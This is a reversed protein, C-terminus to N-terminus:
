GVRGESLGAPFPEPRACTSAMEYHAHNASADLIGFMAELVHYALEGSARHARGDLIAQAMDAAGVGRANESKGHTLPVETWEQEGAKRLKV